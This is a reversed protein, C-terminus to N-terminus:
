GDSHSWNRVYPCWRWRNVGPAYRYTGPYRAEGSRIARSMEVSLEIHTSYSDDTEYVNWEQTAGYPLYCGDM